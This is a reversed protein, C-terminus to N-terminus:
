IQFPFNQRFHDIYTKFKFNFAIFHWFVWSLDSRRSQQKAMGLSKPKVATAPAACKTHVTRALSPGSPNPRLEVFIGVLAQSDHDPQRGGAQYYYIFETAFNCAMILESVAITVEFQIVSSLKAVLVHASFAVSLRAFFCLKM